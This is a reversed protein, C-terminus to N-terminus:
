RYATSRHRVVIVDVEKRGEEIRYIVRYEGIRIRWLDAAGLLKRCGEPRPNQSLGRIRSLVRSCHPEDLKEFEKRASRAFVVSYDAM